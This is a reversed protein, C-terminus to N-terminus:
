AKNLVLPFYMPRILRMLSEIDFQRNRRAQVHKRTTLSIVGMSIYLKLMLGPIHLRDISDKILSIRGM